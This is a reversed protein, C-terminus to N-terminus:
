RACQTGKNRAQLWKSLPAFYDSIAAADIDHEGTFVALAQPWPKSQGMRLMAELRAGVEKNRYVSCRSLPGKWGAM